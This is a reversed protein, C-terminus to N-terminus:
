EFLKSCSRHSEGLGVVVHVSDALTRFSAIDQSRNQIIIVCCAVGDGAGCLKMLEFRQGGSQVIVKIGFVSGLLITM